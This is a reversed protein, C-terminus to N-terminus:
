RWNEVILPDPNEISIVEQPKPPGHFVLISCDEHLFTPRDKGFYKPDADFGKFKAYQWRYSMTWHEPWIEDDPIQETIWNQDGVLRKTIAEQYKIFLHWVNPYSKFEFRFVSSNRVINDPDRGEYHYDDIICFRGPKYTFFKDINRVIVIDLDLFLVTGNYPLTPDFIKLKYWWAKKPGHIGLDPLPLIDIDEDIGNSDETFCIFKVDFSCNRKVMNKLINVYKSSYLSGHKLCAVYYTM